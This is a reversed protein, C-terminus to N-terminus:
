RSTHCGSEGVLSETNNDFWRVLYGGRLLYNAYYDVVEGLRFPKELAVTDGKQIITQKPM